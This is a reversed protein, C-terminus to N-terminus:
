EPMVPVRITARTGDGPRSDLEFTGRMALVRKRISALGFTSSAADGDLAAPDFGAGEDSV